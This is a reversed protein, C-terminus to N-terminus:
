RPARESTRAKRVVFVGACPGHHGIRENMRLLLEGHATEEMAVGLGIALASFFLRHVKRYRLMYFLTRYGAGQGEESLTALHKRLAPAATGTILIVLERNAVLTSMAHAYWGKEETSVPKMNMYDGEFAYWCVIASRNIPVTAANHREYRDGSNPGGTPCVTTRAISGCSNTGHRFSCGSICGAPWSPSSSPQCQTSATHEEGVRSSLSGGVPMVAACFMAWAWLESGARGTRAPADHRVFCCRSTGTRVM